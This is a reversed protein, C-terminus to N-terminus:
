TQRLKRYHMTSGNGKNINNMDNLTPTVTMSLRSRGDLWQQAGCLAIRSVGGGHTEGLWASFAQCKMLMNM